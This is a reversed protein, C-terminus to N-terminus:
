GSRLMSEVAEPSIKGEMPGFAQADLAGAAAAMRACEVASRGEIMGCIYGADFCDGAGTPDVETIPFSPVHISDERTYVTSGSAGKKVIVAEMPGGDLLAAVGDQEKERGSLLALEGSGPFLISTRQLVPGIVEGLDRGQLLEPRINPDFSVKAGKQHFHIAADCIGRRFEENVMLSCGMVHFVMPNESVASEWDAMVAPTGDIHYIFKRSGDRFYTVFAVATFRAAVRRVYDCCVGDAQLRELLCSGFDDRGVGGIIASPHGLRAAADIFIAPAGSPFPGLFTGPKNLPMEAEPRMIEVLMEGMALIEPAKAHPMVPGIYCLDPCTYM